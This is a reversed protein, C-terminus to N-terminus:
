MGTRAVIAYIRAPTSALKLMRRSSQRRGRRLQASLEWECCHVRVGRALGAEDESTPLVLEANTAMASSDRMGDSLSTKLTKRTKVASVHAFRNAWELDTMIIIEDATVMATHLNRPPVMPFHTDKLARRVQTDNNMVVPWAGRESVVTAVMEAEESRRNDTIITVVDDKEVAFCTDVILEASKRMDEETRPQEQNEAM